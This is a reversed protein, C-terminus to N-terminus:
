KKIKKNMFICIVGTSFLSLIFLIIIYFTFINTNFTPKIMHNNDTNESPKKSNPSLIYRTIILFVIIIIIFFIYIKLLKMM